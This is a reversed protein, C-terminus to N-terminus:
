KWLHEETESCRNSAALKLALTRTASTDTPLHITVVKMPKLSKPNFTFYYLIKNNFFNKFASFDATDETTIKTGQRKAVFSFAARSLVELKRRCSSCIPQPPLFSSLRGVQMTQQSRNQKRLAQVSETPAAKM